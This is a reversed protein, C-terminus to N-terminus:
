RTYRAYWTITLTTQYFGNINQAVRDKGSNRIHVTQSDYTFAAGGKFVACIEDAKQAALGSGEGLPYNLNVQMIGTYEDQGSDGLTVAAPRNPIIFLEAWATGAQPKYVVNEQAVPLAFGGSSFAQRLAAEIKFISM